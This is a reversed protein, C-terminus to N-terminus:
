HKLTVNLLNYHHNNWCVLFLFVRSTVFECGFRSHRNYLVLFNEFYPDTLVKFQHVRYHTKPNRLRNPINNIVSTNTDASSIFTEMINIRPNSDWELCTHKHTRKNQTQTTRHTPLPRAVPQDSTWPTRGDTYCLNRFQLFPWPRVFPQLTM